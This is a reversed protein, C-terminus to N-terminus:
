IGAGTGCFALVKKVVDMWGGSKPLTKLWDPFIAFLAFPLALALGFGSMGATLQWAGANSSLSGVLLSGLIPGTCSFSVLALTLAMFFIGGISGLGGKNATTNTLKGPLTIDFFGFFSLAFFIFIVFFFINVWANTSITNFIEPNIDSLLHFPLSAALYILLIFFGYLIGNRVGQKKNRARNTFFSVTVPVMPFVCPTLLAIFGGAIGLLFIALLGKGSTEEGGCNALPKALNVSALKMADAAHSTGGELAVSRQEEVPYFEDDKAAFGYVQVPLEAPIDGEITIHQVLSIEGEYVRLQQNEFVPDKVTSVPGNSELDQRLVKENEWKLSLPELGEVGKNEAYVHWGDTIKGKLEIAYSHDGTKRASVDIQVPSPQSFCILPLLLFFSLLHRM